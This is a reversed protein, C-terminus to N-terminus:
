SEDMRVGYKKRIIVRPKCITELVEASGRHRKKVVGDSLVAVVIREVDETDDSDIGRDDAAEMTDEDYDKGVSVVELTYHGPQCKIEAATMFVSYFIARVASVGEDGIVM